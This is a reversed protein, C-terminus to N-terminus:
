LLAAAAAILDQVYRRAAIPGGAEELVDAVARMAIQRAREAVIAAVVDVDISQRGADASGGAVVNGAVGAGAAGAGGALYGGPEFTPDRAVVESWRGEDLIEADFFLEADQAHARASVLMAVIVWTARM